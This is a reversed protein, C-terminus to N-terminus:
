KGKKALARKKRARTNRLVRKEDEDRHLHYLFANPKERYQQLYDALNRLFEVLDTRLSGGYRMFANKIKGESGNCGRCLVGRVCGTVHDHDMCGTEVTLGRNCLPCVGGQRKILAAKVIPVQRATLRPVADAM